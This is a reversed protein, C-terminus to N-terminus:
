VLQNMIILQVWSRAKANMAAVFAPRGGPASFSSSSPKWIENSCVSSVTWKIALVYPQAQTKVMEFDIQELTIEESMNLRADWSSDNIQYYVCDTGICQYIFFRVQKRM